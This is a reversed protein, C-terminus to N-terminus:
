RSRLTELVKAAGLVKEEQFRRGVIQVSVPFGDMREPDYLKWNWADAENLPEYPDAPLRDRSASVTTLPISIAPYDLVNWIKTYGVWRCTRHPVAPHPMTATLLIDVTRGSPGKIASWKRHYAQQAAIKQKNIQWYEYVSIPKGRNILAEVHPVFPEGGAQVERRIDEGGDATYFQDMIAICDKHLSPEWQIIEHGAKEFIAAAERLAREIPPHVKVMGDDVMIGITLPRSQIEEFMDNQWPIPICGPDLLWPQAEIVSKMTIILSDLSRAMPGIASPVHAQGETSVPVGMYPLRSSTPKLGYLGNMHSPIRISGGIDTGWGILSGHMSILAGEGGTSGGPTFNPNDPFTTLGWLPNETECWMISQPLNTKAFIVAGLKLLIQVIAADEGAPHFSRAVYGLTTDFGKVNFQDKLTVPVGHLPGIVTGHTKYYKDLSRSRAIADELFVETLCNTAKHVVIARNIYARIVDEASITGEQLKSVLTEVDSIEIISAATLESGAQADHSTPDSELFQAIAAAQETRKRAVIEKWEEQPM